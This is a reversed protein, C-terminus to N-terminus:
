TEMYICMNICNIKVSVKKPKRLLDDYEIWNTGNYQVGAVSTQSHATTCLADLMRTNNSM